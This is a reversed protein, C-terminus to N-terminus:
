EYNIYMIKIKNKARTLKYIMYKGFRDFYININNALNGKLNYKEIEQRKFLVVGFFFFRLMNTMLFKCIFM